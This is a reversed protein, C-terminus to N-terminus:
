MRKKKYIVAAIVVVGLGGGGAILWIPLILPVAVDEPNYVGVAIAAPVQEGPIWHGGVYLFGNNGMELYIDRPVGSYLNQWKISLISRNWEQTGTSDLKYLVWKLEFRFHKSIVYVNGDSSVTIGDAMIWDNWLDGYNKIVTTEWVITGDKTVKSINFYGFQYLSYSVIFHDDTMTMTHVVDHYIWETFNGNHDYESIGPYGGMDVTFIRDDSDVFIQYNQYGMNEYITTWLVDGQSDVKMIFADAITGSHPDDRLRDGVIIVSGDSCVALDRGYDRDGIDYTKNWVKSGGSNWKILVVDYGGSGWGVTYINDGRVAVAEGVVREHSRSWVVSGLPNFKVLNHRSTQTPYDSVQGIAYTSDDEGIAMDPFRVGYEGRWNGFGVSSYAEYEYDAEGSVVEFRVSLLQVTLSGNLYTWPGYEGSGYFSLKPSIGLAVRITDTPDEQGSGTDIMGDFIDLIDFYTFDGSRTQISQDGVNFPYEYINIWNHSYDIEWIYLSIYHDHKNYSFNGALFPHLEVQVKADLPRENGTWEIEQYTYIFDNCDPYDDHVSSKFNLSTNAIHSFTLNLHNRDGPGTSSHYNSSYEGSSGNIVVAPTDDFDTDEVLEEITVAAPTSTRTPKHVVSMHGAILPTGSLIVVVLLIFLMRTKGLKVVRFMPFKVM